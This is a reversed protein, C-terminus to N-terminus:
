RGAPVPPLVHPGPQPPPRRNPRLAIQALREALDAILYPKSLLGRAGMSILGQAEENDGYGSCILVPVSPDVAQMEIFAERGGMRPMKLDLIVGTIEKRRARFVAVGEVGDAATVSRYGLHTLATAALRRLMEEDEVVLILGAGGVAEGAPQKSVASEVM